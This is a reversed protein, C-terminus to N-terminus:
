PPPSLRRRSFQRLLIIAGIQEEALVAAHDGPSERFLDSLLHAHARARDSERWPDRSVDTSKSWRELGATAGAEDQVFGCACCAPLLTPAIHTDRRPVSPAKRTIQAFLTELFM